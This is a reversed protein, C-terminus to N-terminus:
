SSLGLRKMRAVHAETLRTIMRGLEALDLGSGQGGGVILGALADREVAVYQAQAIAEGVLRRGWLALRGAVVPAAAIAETVSEVVLDDQGGDALVTEVLERDVPDLHVAIERYFDRAIGDGVYAKVLGELWDSPATRDHYSGIAAVFPQMAEVPAHGLETLRAAIREFHGFEVTAMRGLAMQVRIEPARSADVSMQLCATLEAYALAGLLDALAAQDVAQGVTGPADGAPDVVADGSM